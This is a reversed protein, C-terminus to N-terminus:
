LPNPYLHRLTIRADEVKFLWHIKAQARNREDQWAATEQQLTEQDPIRRKLCQRSLVSLEIEAQNLWSGHKPTYHFVLRKRIRHAEEPPFAEYLSAFTHTNLNDLVVHIRKANPFHVDVLQKMQHAFDLKTRRETVDIHRWGTLPQFCLFLNATGKREYEYDERRPVGPKMPLPDLLHDLLQRSMEDFCVQPEDPDYPQAYVDLVDEM